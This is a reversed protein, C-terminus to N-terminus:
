PKGSTMYTVNTARSLDAVDFRYRTLYSGAQSGLPLDVTVTCSIECGNVNGLYEKLWGFWLNWSDVGVFGGSLELVRLLCRFILVEAIYLESLHNLGVDGYLLEM